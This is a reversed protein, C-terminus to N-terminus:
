NGSHHSRSTNTDAPPKPWSTLQNSRSSVTGPASYTM